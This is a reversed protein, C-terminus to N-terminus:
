RAPETELVNEPRNPPNPDTRGIGAFRRPLGLHNTSFALAFSHPPDLSCSELTQWCDSGDKRFSPASNRQLLLPANAFAGSRELEGQSATFRGSSLPSRSWNSAATRPAAMMPKTPPLRPM